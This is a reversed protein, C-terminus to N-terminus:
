SVEMLRTSLWGCGPQYLFSTIVLSSHDQHTRNDLVTHTLQSNGVDILRTGFNCGLDSGAGDADAPRIEVHVSRTSLWLAPGAAMLDGTLQRSQWGGVTACELNAVQDGDIRDAESCGAAVALVTSGTGREVATM